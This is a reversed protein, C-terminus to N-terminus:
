VGHELSGSHYGFAAYQVKFLILMMLAGFLGAAIGTLVLLMWFGCRSFALVM